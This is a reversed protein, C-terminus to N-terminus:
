KAWIRYIQENPIYFVQGDEERVIKVTSETVYEFTSESITGGGVLDIRTAEGKPLKSGCGTLVFLIVICTILCIIKKM